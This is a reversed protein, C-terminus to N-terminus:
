DFAFETQTFQQEYGARSIHVFRHHVLHPLIWQEKDVLM